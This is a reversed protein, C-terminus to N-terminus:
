AGPQPAGDYGSVLLKLTIFKLCLSLLLVITLAIMYQLGFVANLLLFLAYEGLRFALSVIAYRPLEQAVRGNRRFVYFKVTAFNVFFVVALGIAVAVKPSVLFYERLVFPIGLSLMASVVTMGIYRFGENLHDRIGV